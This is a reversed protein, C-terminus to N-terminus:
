WHGRYMLVVGWGDGFVEPITVEQDDLDSLTIQPFADGSDLKMLQRVKRGGAAIITLPWTM